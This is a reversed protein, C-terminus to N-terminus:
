YLAAGAALAAKAMGALSKDVGKINQKAKNFGQTEAKIIHKNVSM